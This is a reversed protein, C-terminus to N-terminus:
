INVEWIGTSNNLVFKKVTLNMAWNENPQFTSALMRINGDFCIANIKKSSSDSVQVMDGLQPVKKVWVRLTM